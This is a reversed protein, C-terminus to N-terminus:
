GVIMVSSGLPIRSLVRLTAAPVRV